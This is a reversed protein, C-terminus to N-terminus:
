RCMNSHSTGFINAELGGAKLTFNCMYLSMFGGYRGAHNIKDAMEPLKELFTEFKATQPIWAGTVDKLGGLAKEFDDGAVTMMQALAALARDGSDFLATLRGQDGVISTTLAGLGAFLENLQGSRQDASTMLTNLNAVVRVFVASNASLNSGMTAIQRLLLDVSKTRGAFTDVFGQALENVQAPELSAFLPEFGNMLATLNVPPSTAAVAVVNGDRAPADNSPEIAIYRAGLMDGYRIAANMREPLPHDSQVEVDIRALSTGDSQPDLVVGEVRGIRVGSMKVPNGEIIGEADTFVLTYRDTSGGVPVRLTNIVLLGAVVGVLVFLISKIVTSVSLTTM